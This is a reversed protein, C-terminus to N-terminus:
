ELGCHYTVTKGDKRVTLRDDRLTMESGTLSLFWPKAYNTLCLLADFARRNMAEDETIRFLGAKQCKAYLEDEVAANNYFAETIMERETEGEIRVESQYQLKYYRYFNYFDEVAQRDFPEISKIEQALCQMFTRDVYELYIHKVSSEAEIIQGDEQEFWNYLSYEDWALMACAHMFREGDIGYKQSLYTEEQKTDPQYRMLQVTDYGLLHTLITNLKYAMNYIRDHTRGNQILCTDREDNFSYFTPAWKEIEDSSAASTLQTDGELLIFRIGNRLIDECWGDNYESDMFVDQYAHLMEHLFIDCSYDSPEVYDANVCMLDYDHEYFAGASRIHYTIKGFKYEGNTFTDFLKTHNIAFIYRMQMTRLDPVGSSRLVTYVDGYNETLRDFSALALTRLEDKMDKERLVQALLKEPPLSADYSWDYQPLTTCVYEPEPEPEPETQTETQTTQSQTMEAAADANRNRTAAAIGTSLILVALVTRLVRQYISM